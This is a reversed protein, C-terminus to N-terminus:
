ATGAPRARPRDRHAARPVVLRLPSPGRGGCGRCTRSASRRRRRRHDGEVGGVALTQVTRRCLVSCAAAPAPAASRGATRRPRGAGRGLPHELSPPASSASRTPRSREAQTVPRRGVGPLRGDQRLQEGLLAGIKAASRSAACFSSATPSVFASGASSGASSAAPSPAPRPSASGRRPPSAGSVRTAPSASVSSSGARDVNACSGGRVEEAPEASPRPPAPARSAQQAALGPAARRRRGLGNRPTRAAGCKAGLAFRTM